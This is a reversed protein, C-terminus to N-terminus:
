PFRRGVHADATKFRGKKCVCMYIYPIRVNPRMRVYERLAISKGAGATPAILMLEGPMLEQCMIVDWEASRTIVRDHLQPEHPEHTKGYGDCM